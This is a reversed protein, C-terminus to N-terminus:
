RDKDTETGAAGLNQKDASEKAATKVRDAASKAKDVASDAAAEVDDQLDSAVNRAEDVGAKVVERAKRVEENYIREAEDYLDDSYAGVYDDELRTRPLAGATAAGIAFALAGMVLPHEDYFDAVQDTGRSIRRSAADRADIAKARAAAIRDRAEDSLHETGEALRRQLAEARHSASSWINGATDRIGHAADHATDGVSRAADSASDRVSAAGSSVSAAVSSAGSAVAGAADEAADRAASSAHSARDGLSTGSTSRGHGLEDREWDRAWTPQAAASPRRTQWRAETKPGSYSAGRRAAYEPVDDAVHTRPVTGHHDRRGTHRDDRDNASRKNGFILWALGVGTLALAVPNDRASQAVSRGFDGGHERFQDGVQQVVGDFSFRDQLGEISDKLGAREREIEREIEDPSKTDNTM